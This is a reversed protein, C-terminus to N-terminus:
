RPAGLRGMASWRAGLMEWSLGVQLCSRGLCGLKPEVHGDQSSKNEEIQSGNGFWLSPGHKACVFGTLCHAKDSRSCVNQRKIPNTGENSARALRAPGFPGEPGKPTLPGKPGKSPGHARPPWHARRARQWRAIRM